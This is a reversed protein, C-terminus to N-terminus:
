TTTGPLDGVLRARDDCQAVEVPDLIRDITDTPAM